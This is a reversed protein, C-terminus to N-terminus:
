YKDSTGNQEQKNERSFPGTNILLSLLWPKLFLVPFLIAM